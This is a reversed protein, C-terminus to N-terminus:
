NTFDIIQKEIISFCDFEENAKKLNLAAEKYKSNNLVADVGGRIQDPTPTQTQLNVGLGALEARLSVEKKDQFEGALVLPVGNVVAHTLSGYGSNTIFVDAHELVADYPIFDEVKANSPISFGAQLSGGRVGLAVVVIMDDRGALARLTPMILEEPNTAVIGQAVFVVKKGAKSAIEPWWEPYKYGPDLPKRPLCGAFKVYPPLDSRHHELQPPCMQLCADKTTIWADMAETPFETAGAEALYKAQMSAYAGWLGHKSLDYLAANRLRGSKTSDPPLGLFFPATDISRIFLPLINIAVVKPFVNFGKPLPRGLKYPYVSMSSCEEVIIIQREPDRERLMELTEGLIRARTPMGLFFTGEVSKAFRALGPPMRALEDVMEPTFWAYLPPTEVFEAGLSLIKDRFDKTSIFLADYGRAIIAAAIQLLPQVHSGGPAATFVLLPKARSDVSSMM